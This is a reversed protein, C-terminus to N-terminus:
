HPPADEDVHGASLLIDDGRLVRIAQMDQEFADSRDSPAATAKDMRDIAGVTSLRALAAAAEVLQEDEGDLADITDGLGMCAVADATERDPVGSIVIAEGGVTCGGQITAVNEGNLWGAITYVWFPEGDDDVGEHEFIVAPDQLRRLDDAVLRRRFSLDPAVNAASISM